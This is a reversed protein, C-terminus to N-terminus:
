KAYLLCVVSDDERLEGVFLHSNFVISTMIIMFVNYNFLVYLNIMSIIMATM